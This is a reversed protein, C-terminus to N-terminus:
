SPLVEQFREYWPCSDSKYDAPTERPNAGYVLDVVGLRQCAVNVRVRDRFKVAQVREEVRELARWDEGFRERANILRQM